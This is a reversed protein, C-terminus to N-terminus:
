PPNRPGETRPTLPRGRASPVPAPRARPRAPPARHHPRTGGARQGATSPPTLGPRGRARHRAPRGPPHRPAPLPGSRLMLGAILAGAVFVATCWWFVTTYGHISALHIDRATPTGQVHDDFWTGTATAAITNLLATGIAGGLQQGTSVCASAIGTDKLAM